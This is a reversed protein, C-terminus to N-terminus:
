RHVRRSRDATWLGAVQQTVGLRHPRRLRTRLNSHPWAVDGEELAKIIKANAAEEHGAALM